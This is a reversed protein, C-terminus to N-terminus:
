NKEFRLFYLDFVDIDIARLKMNLAKAGVIQNTKQRYQAIVM